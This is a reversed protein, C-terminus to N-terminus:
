TGSRHDSDWWICVAEPPPVTFDAPLLRDIEPDATRDLCLRRRTFSVLLDRPQPTPPAPRRTPESHPALDLERLVAVLVINAEAESLIALVTDLPDLLHCLRSVPLGHHLRIQGGRPGLRYQLHNV